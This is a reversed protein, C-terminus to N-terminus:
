LSNILYETEISFEDVQVIHYTNYNPHLILLNMSSVKKKYNKEKSNSFEKSNLYLSKDSESFSAISLIVTNNAIPLSPTISSNISSKKILM